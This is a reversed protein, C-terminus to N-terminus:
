CANVGSFGCFESYKSGPNKTMEPKVTMSAAEAQGESPEALVMHHRIPTQSDSRRPAQAEATGYSLSLALNAAFVAASVIIRTRLLTM